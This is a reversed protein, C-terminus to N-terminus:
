RTIGVCLEMLLHFFGVDEYVGHLTVINLHGWKPLTKCTLTEGSVKNKCLRVVVFTSLGLKLNLNYDMELSKNMTAVDICGIKQKLRTEPSDKKQLLHQLQQQISIILIRGRDNLLM